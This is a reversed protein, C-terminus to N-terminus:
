PWIGHIKKKKKGNRRKRAKEGYDTLNIMGEKLNETGKPDLDGQVLEAAGERHRSRQGGPELRTRARTQPIRSVM